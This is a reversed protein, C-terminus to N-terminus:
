GGPTMCVGGSLILRELDDLGAADLREEGDRAPMNLQERQGDIWDRTEEIWWSMWRPGRILQLGFSSGLLAKEAKPLPWASAIDALVPAAKNEAQALSWEVDDIATGDPRHRRYYRRRTGVNEPAMLTVGPEDVIHVAILDDDAFRRLYM